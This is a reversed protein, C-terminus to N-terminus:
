SIRVMEDGDGCGVFFINKSKSLKKRGWDMDDSTYVFVVNDYEDNFYEMADM